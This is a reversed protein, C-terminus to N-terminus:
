SRGSSALKKKVNVPRQTEDPARKWISKRSSGFGKLVKELQMEEAARYLTRRSISRTEAMRMVKDVELEEQDELLDSLLKVADERENTKDGDKKAVSVIDEATLDVYEGWEFKSRGTENLTDPLPRISFTLSKPFPAVNNKTVAMVRLEPDEPHVGVTCVVRALATFAISGQGRYMARDKGSKTLHRIVIVACNYRVALEKFKVFVQQVEHAKFADAGGLYTNMTDFVAVLPRTKEFWAEIKEMFDDDAISFPEACQIFNQMNKTGNMLLRPKTVRAPDNEIDFYVIKGPVQTYKRPSPSTRGDCIAACWMQAMYSKGQGPDGEVITVEGRALYPYIVWVINEREITDMSRFMQDVEEPEGVVKRSGRLHEEISKRIERRIQEDESARGEFKNWPSAKMLVFVEEEELGLEILTSEIKWFMESRKGAKPKGNLLERRLWMPFKKQYKRFLDAAENDGTGSSSSVRKTRPMRSDLEKVTYEPGDGWMLRVKPTSTYKYNRTGPVRLVQTLDWGSKDAGIAYSLRQNLEETMQEDIMWLGVFRGPSSEIAVTPKIKITRPDAEDLDSWLMSPPLAFEKRRHPKSFGHPCFYIDKDNNSEIFEEVEGLRKRAFFHDQWKGSASKTSICFFKGPQERWLKVIIM